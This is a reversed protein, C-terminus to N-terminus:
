WLPDKGIVAKLGHPAKVDEANEGTSLYVCTYGESILQEAVGEGRVGDGLNVDVFIRSDLDILESAAWFAEASRFCVLTKGHQKSAAKWASHILTDDDIVVADYKRPGEGSNMLPHDNPDDTRM